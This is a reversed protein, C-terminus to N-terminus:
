LGGNGFGTRLASVTSRALSDADSKQQIMFGQQNIEINYTNSPTMSKIATEVSNVAEIIGSNSSSLASIVPTFDQQTSSINISRITDQTQKFNNENSQRLSVISDQLSQINRALNTNDYQNPIEVSIKQAKVAETVERIASIIVNVASSYNNINNNTPQQPSALQEIKTVLPNLANTIALPIDQQNTANINKGNFNLWSSNQQFGKNIQALISQGIETGTQSSFEKKLMDTFVEGGLEAMKSIYESAIVSEYAGSTKYQGKTPALETVVQLKVQQSIRKFEDELASKDIFGGEVAKKLRQIRQTLQNFTINSWQKLTDYAKKFQETVKGTTTDIKQIGKAMNNLAPTFKEPSAGLYNIADEAREIFNNLSNGASKWGQALAQATIDGQSALKKLRNFINEEVIEEPISYKESASKVFDELQKQAQSLSVNLALELNKNGLFKQMREFNSPMEMFLRELSRTIEETFNIFEDQKTINNIEKQVDNVEQGFTHYAKILIDVKGSVQGAKVDMNVLEEVVNKWFDPLSKFEDESGQLAHTIKTAITNDIDNATGKFNEAMEPFKAIVNQIANFIKGKFNKQLESILGNIDILSNKVDKFKDPLDEFGTQIAEEMSSNKELENIKATVENIQKEANIIEAIEQYKANAREISIALLAFESAIIGMTGALPANLAILAKVSNYLKTFASAFNMISMPIQAGKGIIWGWFSISAFTDLHEILFLLPAKVTSFFNAISSGISKITAGFNKVNDVFRQVDFSELIEKFGANSPIRFGLGEIFANLSQGAIQTKNIWKSFERTLEAIGSVAEKSQEKIQTFIEIHVEETASKFANWVNPWAKMKENVASQTSGWKQLNKENEALTSSYKALNLAALKAREGFISSADALSFGKAQLESFIDRLPRMTGDLNRTQIGLVQSAKALKSLTMTLGTGIMEGTLGANALVEMASIAETLEMGLSGAAPGVYKMAEILKSINLRSQNSANNFIDTIKNATDISMSFNTMTSGLLDAANAMDVNQSIALASVDAVSALIDKAKTGSQALLEMATAADKATIPLAAGMERAKKILMDLEEETAGSIVKVNTIQAEFAGGISMANKTVFGIATSIAAAGQAISKFLNGFRAELNKGWGDLKVSLEATKKMFSSSFTEALKEGMTMFQGNAKHLRGLADFRTDVQIEVTSDQLNETAQSVKKIESVAQSSDGTIKLHLGEVDAM